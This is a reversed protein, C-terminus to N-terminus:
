RSSGFRIALFFHGGFGGGIFSQRHRAVSTAVATTSFAHPKVSAFIRVWDESRSRGVDHLGAIQARGLVILQSFSKCPASLEGYKVALLYADYEGDASVQRTDLLFADEGRAINLCHEFIDDYGDDDTEQVAEVFEPHTSRFWDIENCSTLAETWKAVPGWGNSALLFGHLSPPLRVGLREETAAIEQGTAPQYGLWRASVQERTLSGARPVMNETTLGRVRLYWDSYETLYPRWQEATVPLPGPLPGSAADATM